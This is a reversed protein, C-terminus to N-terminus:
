QKPLTTKCRNVMSPSGANFPLSPYASSRPSLDDHGILRSHRPSLMENSNKPTGPQCTLTGTGWRTYAFGTGSWVAARRTLLVRSAMAEHEETWTRVVCDRDGCRWRRKNWVLEAPRGFCELDRYTAVRREHSIARTGCQPCGTVTATTEVTVVLEVGGNVEDVDLVRFGDLGLLRDALSTADCM